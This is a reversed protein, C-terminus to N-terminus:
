VACLDDLLVRHEKPIDDLARQLNTFNFAVLEVRGQAIGVGRWAGCSLADYIGIIQQPGVCRRLESGDDSFVVVVGSVVLFISSVPMDKVFLVESHILELSEGNCFLSRGPATYMPNM